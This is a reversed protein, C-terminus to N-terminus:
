AACLRDESKNQGVKEVGVALIALMDPTMEIGTEGRRTIFTQGVNSGAIYAAAIAFLWLAQDKAAVFNAGSRTARIIPMLKSSFDSLPLPWAECDTVVLAAIPPRFL